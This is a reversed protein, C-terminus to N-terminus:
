LKNIVWLCWNKRLDSNLLRWLSILSDVSFIFSKCWMCCECVDNAGGEFRNELFFLRRFVGCCDYRAANCWSFFWRPELLFFRDILRHAFVAAILLFAFLTIMGRVAEESTNCYCDDYLSWYERILRTISSRLLDTYLVAWWQVHTM